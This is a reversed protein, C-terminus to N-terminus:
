SLSFALLVLEIETPLSFVDSTRKEGKLASGKLVSIYKVSHNEATLQQFDQRKLEQSGVLWCQELGLQYVKLSLLKPQFYSTHTSDLLTVTESLRM